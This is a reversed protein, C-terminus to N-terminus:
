SEAASVTDSKVSFVPLRIKFDVGIESIDISAMSGKWANKTILCHRVIKLVYMLLRIDIRRNNARGEPTSNDDVPRTKGYSVAFVPEDKPSRFQGLVPQKILMNEFTNTARRASLRLNTNIKLNNKLGGRIPM